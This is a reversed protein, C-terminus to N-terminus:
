KILQSIIIQSQWRTIIWSPVCGGDKEASFWAWCERVLRAPDLPIWPVWTRKSGEGTDWSCCAPHIPISSISNEECRDPSPWPYKNINRAWGRKQEGPLVQEWYIRNSYVLFIPETEPYGQHYLHSGKPLEGAGLLNIETGQYILIYYFKDFCIANLFLAFWM